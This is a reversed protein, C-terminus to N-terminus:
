YQIIIYLSLLRLHKIQIHDFLVLPQVDASVFSILASNFSYDRAHILIFVSVKMYARVCVAHANISTSIKNATAQSLALGRRFVKRIVILPGQPIQSRSRKPLLERRVDGSIPPVVAAAAPGFMQYFPLFTLTKDPFTTSLFQPM